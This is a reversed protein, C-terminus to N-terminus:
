DEQQMSTNELRDRMKEQKVTKATQVFLKPNYDPSRVDAVSKEGRKIL